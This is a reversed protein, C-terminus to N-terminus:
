KNSVPLPLFRCSDDAGIEQVTHFFDNADLAAAVSQADPRDVILKLRRKAPLNMLERALQAPKLKGLRRERLEVIDAPM